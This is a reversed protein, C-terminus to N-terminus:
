VKKMWACLLLRRKETVFCNIKGAYYYTIVGKDHVILFVSKVSKTGKITRIIRQKEWIILNM